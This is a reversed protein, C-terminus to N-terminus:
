VTATGVPVGRSEALLEEYLRQASLFEGAEAKEYAAIYRPDGHLDPGSGNKLRTAPNATTHLHRRKRAMRAKRDHSKRSMAKKLSQNVFV